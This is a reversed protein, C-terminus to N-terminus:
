WRPALSWAWAALSVIVAMLIMGVLLPSPGEGRGRRAKPIECGPCLLWHVQGDQHRRLANCTRHCGDCIGLM